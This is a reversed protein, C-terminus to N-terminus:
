KGVCFRAFVLGLVDDPTVDGAVIALADLASRLAAAVLEPERLHADHRELAAGALNMADRLREGASALAALHRPTLIVADAAVSVARDALRQAIASRLAGIGAGTHASVIVTAGDPGPAGAAGGRPDDAKTRVVIRPATGPAPPPPAADGIPVCLLVLEARAFASTAQAAMARALADGAPGEEDAGAVDVLMVEAPGADTEIELPEALADRTTGAVHSVVARERGLLANFLTSKGANPAGALVVWPVAEIREAPIARAREADIAASSGALADRLARPAIPVVDEQDTFDIGAEVLALLDAIAGALSRAATAVRGSALLDAARLEADSAAAIRLAVAEAEEITMRGHLFARATFEGAHAPRAPIGRRRAAGILEGVLADLLAPSGPVLLEASDEGTYSRPAPAVIAVAPLPCGLLTLRVLHAGRWRPMPSGGGGAAGDIADFAGPGSLRVVGRASRGPPSAVAVILDTV